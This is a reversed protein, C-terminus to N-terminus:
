PMRDLAFLAACVISALGSILAGLAIWGHQGPSAEIVHLGVSLCATCGVIRTLATM